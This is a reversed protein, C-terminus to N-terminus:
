TQGHCYIGLCSYFADDFDLSSSTEGVSTATPWTKKVRNPRASQWCRQRDSGM